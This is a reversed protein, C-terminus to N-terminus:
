SRGGKSKFINDWVKTGRNRPGDARLSAINRLVSQAAQLATTLDLSIFTCITFYTTLKPRYNCVSVLPPFTM